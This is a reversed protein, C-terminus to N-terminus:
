QVPRTVAAPAAGVPLVTAAPWCDQRHTRPDVGRVRSAIHGRRRRSPCLVSCGPVAAVQVPVTALGDSEGDAALRWGEHRREHRTIRAVWGFFGVGSLCDVPHWAQGTGRCAAGNVLMPAPSSRSRSLPDVLRFLSVRPELAVRPAVRSRASAGSGDAAADSRMRTDPARGCRALLYDAAHRSM